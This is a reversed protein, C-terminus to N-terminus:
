IMVELTSQSEVEEEINHISLRTENFIEVVENGHIDLQETEIVDKLLEVNEFTLTQTTACIGRKTIRTLNKEMM